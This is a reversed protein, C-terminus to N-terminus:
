GESQRIMRRSLSGRWAVLESEREYKQIADTYKEKGVGTLTTPPVLHCSLLIASFGCFFCLFFTHCLQWCHGTSFFILMANSGYQLKVNGSGALHSMTKSSPPLFSFQGPLLVSVPCTFEVCFSGPHDAPQPVQANASCSHSLLAWWQVVLSTPCKGRVWRTTPSAPTWALQRPSSPKCGPCTPLKVCPESSWSGNVSVNVGVSRNLTLKGCPFKKPCHNSAPTGPSFGCLGLSLMYVGCLFISGTVKKSDPSLALWQVMSCKSFLACFAKTQSWSSHSCCFTCGIM